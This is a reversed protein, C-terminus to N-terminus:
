GWCRGNKVCSGSILLDWSKGSWVLYYRSVHPIKILYSIKKQYCTPFYDIFYTRHLSRPIEFSIERTKVTFNALKFALNSKRRGKIFRPCTINVFPSIRSAHTILPAVGVSPHHPIRLHRHLWINPNRCTVWMHVNFFHNYHKKKVVAVIINVYQVLYQVTSLNIIQM